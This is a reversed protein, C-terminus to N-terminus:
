RGDISFTLVTMGAAITVHQRGDVLYTIPAAAIAAGVNFRWLEHGQRADLGVLLSEDGGFVLGGDTSLVGGMVISPRRPPFRYEWRMQGIAADLARVATWTHQGLASETRSALFAGDPLTIAPGKFYVDSGEMTPVYMTNSAPDYSPSWWNTGGHVNPFILAGERTPRGEPREIPVGASDFGDAWTQRVFAQAHLFEGTARDLIYFFGNRNAWYMLKRAQGNFM